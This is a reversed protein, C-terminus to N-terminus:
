THTKLSCENLTKEDKALLMMLVFAHGMKKKPNNLVDFLTMRLNEHRYADYDLLYLTKGDNREYIEKLKKFGDTKIVANAYLPVYIRKRAEVYGLKEGNWWSYEPIAGKGMPYRHARTDSWGNKAWEFYYDIPNGDNGVFKKYVKSFQWGNEVNQSVYGNYLSCPGIVFPSLDKSWGASSTTNIYIGNPDVKKEFIFIVKVKATM